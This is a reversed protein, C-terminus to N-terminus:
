TTVYCDSNVVLPLVIKTAVFIIEIAVSLVHLLHIGQQSLIIFLLVLLISVYFSRTAVYDLTTPLDQAAVFLNEIAVIFSLSHYIRDSCSFLLDRRFNFFVQSHGLCNHRLM